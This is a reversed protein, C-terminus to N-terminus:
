KRLLTTRIAGLLEDVSLSAEFKAEIRGDAGVLFVWPESPLRWERVWRNYGLAPDNAEYIEVHIFRVAPDRLRKRAEDVVDVVPGCTRSACFKPTAFVLVFPAHARLSDAVSYRLLARDPPQRTTLKSVDGNASALTPTRSPVAEDGVAPTAAHKRVVVNGMGQIAPRAGLPEALLWYTGPAPARFHAVYIQSVDGESTSSAGPVSIQALTAHGQTFPKRDLGRAIWIRAGRRSFVARSQHDVVLFTARVDGPAYDSTGMVLAVNEGPRDWLARLTGPRTKAEASQHKSSSGCGTSVILVALALAALHAVARV